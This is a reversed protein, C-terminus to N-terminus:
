VNVNQTKGIRNLDKLLDTATQYRDEARKALLKLVAMEFPHPIALQFKTPKVPETQRIRAVLEVLSGGECPPRGTLLAYVTAGLGYLDSRGDVDEVGRTREPSMYTVDGLIAGQRTIQRALAGELAKALMLDGLKVTKDATQYLINHPAVNRHIIQEAHAYELARGVHVAVRFANRWDLMGAIGIRQITRTLPEGEVLEMAVWCYAGTKGAAHLTVLNPHRLPLMTKMARIFRQVEEEDRAFDAQLVKLAVSRGDKTDTAQFVLGSQGTGLVPGVTYHALTQGTLAGLQDSTAAHAAPPAAPTTVTAAAAVVDVPFDGLQLRLRSDGVQLVDGPKLVHRSVPAGNILTGGSGGNDVVTVVDGELLIQCHNRSVRMDNLRYLSHHSRGLMLNPGPDLTFARGQDPGAIILLQLSM